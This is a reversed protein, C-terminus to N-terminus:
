MELLKSWSDLEEEEVQKDWPTHSHTPLHSPLQLPLTKQPSGPRPWPWSTSLRCPPVPKKVASQCNKAGGTSRTWFWHLLNSLLNAPNCGGAIHGWNSTRVQISYVSPTQHWRSSVQSGSLGLLCFVDSCAAPPPSTSDDVEARSMNIIDTVESGWSINVQLM